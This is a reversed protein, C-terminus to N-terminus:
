SAVEEDDSLWETKHTEHWNLPEGCWPCVNLMLGRDKASTHFSVGAVRYKDDANRSVIVAVLGKTPLNTGTIREDLRECFRPYKCKLRDAPHIIKETM